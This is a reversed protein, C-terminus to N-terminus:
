FRFIFHESFPLQESEPPWILQAECLHESEAKPARKCLVRWLCAQISPLPDSALGQKAHSAGLEMGWRQWPFLLTVEAPCKHKPFRFNWRLSLSYVLPNHLSLPPPDLCGDNNGSM